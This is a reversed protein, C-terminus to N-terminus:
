PISSDFETGIEGAEVLQEYEEDTVGIVRKYVYENYEGLGTPPLAIRLNSVPMKFLMGPYDYTGTFKHEVREFFGRERLQPCRLLEAVDQVPGAPVGVAQLEAALAHSHHQATWAALLLDLEDQQKRRGVASRFRADDVLDPRQMANALARWEADDWVSIAIWRDDGLCPYVGNPAAGHIDRNGITGQVTGNMTYDMISQPFMHAGNEAQTLEILQGKGTRARHHLAALVAFAGVAGTQFDGAYIGTNSSPDMDAYGRLLAHGLVAEIHNGWARFKAYEGSGGFAPCRLMIIGPNVSSLWEYTIGLKDMTEPVNNEVLVDSAEVLRRLYEKGEATMINITVSKKNRFFPLSAASREYPKDGPDGDPYGSYLPTGGEIDQKRLTRPGRTM